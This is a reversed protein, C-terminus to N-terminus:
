GIGRRQLYPPPFQLGVDIPPFKRGAYFNGRGDVTLARVTGDMASRPGSWPGRNWKAMRNVTIGGATTLGRRVYLNQSSDIALACITSDMGTHAFYRSGNYWFVWCLNSGSDFFNKRAGPTTSNTASSSGVVSVQAHADLPTILASVSLLCLLVVVANVGSLIKSIV